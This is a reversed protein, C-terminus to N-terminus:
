SDNRYISSQMPLGRVYRSGSLSRVLILLLKLGDLNMGGGISSCMSSNLLQTITADKGQFSNVTWGM